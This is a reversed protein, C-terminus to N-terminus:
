AVVIPTGVILTRAAPLDYYRIPNTGARSTAIYLRQRLRSLGRSRGITLTVTSVFYTADELDARGPSRTGGWHM